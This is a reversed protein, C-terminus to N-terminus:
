PIGNGGGWVPKVSRTQCGTPDARTTQSMNRVLCGLIWVQPKQGLPGCHRLPALSSTQAWVTNFYPTLTLGRYKYMCVYTCVYMLTTQFDSNLICVSLLLLQTQRHETSYPALVMSWPLSIFEAANLLLFM